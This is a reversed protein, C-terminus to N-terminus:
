SYIDDFSPQFLGIGPCGPKAVLALSQRGIHILAFAKVGNEM